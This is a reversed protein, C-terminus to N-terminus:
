TTSGCVARTWLYDPCFGVIDIDQAVVIPMQQQSLECGAADHQGAYPALAERGCETSRIGAHATVVRDSLPTAARLASWRCPPSRSRASPHWRRRSERSCLYGRLRATKMLARRTTISCRRSPRRRCAQFPPRARGGGRDRESVPTNRTRRAHSKHVSDPQFEHTLGVTSAPCSV